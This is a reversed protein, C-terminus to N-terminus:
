RAARAASPPASARAAHAWRTEEGARTAGARRLPAPCPAPSPALLRRYPLPSALDTSDFLLQGAWARWSPEKGRGVCVGACSVFAIHSPQFLVAVGARQAGRQPLPPPLRRLSLSTSGLQVDAQCSVAQVAPVQAPWGGSRRLRRRGCRSGLARAEHRACTPDCRLERGGDALSEAAEEAVAPAECAASRPRQAESGESCGCDARHCRAATALQAAAVPRPSESRRSALCRKRRRRRRHAHWASGASGVRQNSLCPRAGAGARAQLPAVCVCMCVCMCEPCM